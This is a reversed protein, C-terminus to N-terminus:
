EEDHDLSEGILMLIFAHHKVQRVFAGTSDPGALSHTIAWRHAHRNVERM